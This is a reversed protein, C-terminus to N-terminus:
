KKPPPVLPYGAPAPGWEFQTVGLDNTIKYHGYNNGVAEVVMETRGASKGLYYCSIGAALAALIVGLIVRGIKEM